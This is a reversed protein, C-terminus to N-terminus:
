VELNYDCECRETTTLNVGGSYDCECRETTTM